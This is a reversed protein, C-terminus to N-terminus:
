DARRAWRALAIALERLTAVDNGPHGKGSTTIETPDFFTTSTSNSIETPQVKLKIPHKILGHPHLYFTWTKLM